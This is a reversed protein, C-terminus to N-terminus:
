PHVCALLFGDPLGKEPQHRRRPRVHELQRGTGVHLGDDRHQRRQQGLRAAPTSVGRLGGGGGGRRSDRRGISGHALLQEVLVRACAHLV